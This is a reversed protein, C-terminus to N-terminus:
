REAARHEPDAQLLAQYELGIDEIATESSNPKMQKATPPM